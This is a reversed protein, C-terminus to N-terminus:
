RGDETRLSDMRKVGADDHLFEYKERAQGAHFGAKEPDNRKRYLRALLEHATALGRPDDLSRFLELAKLLSAAAADLQEFQLQARGFNLHNAALARTDGLSKNTDLASQLLQLVRAQDEKRKLQLLYLGLDNEVTARVSRSESALPLAEELVQIARELEGLARWSAAMGDLNQAEETKRSLRKNLVRSKEYAELAEQQKGLRRLAQGHNHRATAEEAYDDVAAFAEAAKEFSAAAAAWSQRGYAARGSDYAQEAQVRTRSPEKAPKTSACGTMLLLIAILLWHDIMLYQARRKAVSLPYRIVSFQHSESKM